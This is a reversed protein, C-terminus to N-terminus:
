SESSRTNYVYKDRKALILTKHLVPHSEFGRILPNAIRAMLREPVQAYKMLFSSPSNQDVVTLTAVWYMCYQEVQRAFM